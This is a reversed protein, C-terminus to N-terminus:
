VCAARWPKKVCQEITEAHEAFVYCALPRPRANIHDIAAQLSDVTVIPLIPGFIEQQM